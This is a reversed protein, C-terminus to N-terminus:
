SNGYKKKWEKYYASSIMPKKTSHIQLLDNFMSQAFDPPFHSVYAALNDAQTVKLSTKRSELQKKLSQCLSFLHGSTKPYTRCEGKLIAELSINLGLGECYSLFEVATDLGIASAILAVMKKPPESPYLSLLQSVFTWTRPSPYAIDNIGPDACLRTQDQELFGLIRSDIQNAEAWKKWDRVSPEVQFHLLRSCLAKPMQFAVSRDTTRNGAAIVLCNDPLQHEGVKRDLCMQYAAAQMSQPAATLEDLLLINVVDESPDMAFIKPKLWLASESAADAVPIGRLDIPSFLLLRVDTVVVRKGTLNEVRQAAQRVGESKGIGPKGWLFVAPVTHLPMGLEIARIYLDSLREVLEGTYLAPMGSSKNDLKVAMRRDEGNRNRQTYPQAESQNVTQNVQENQDRLIPAKTAPM